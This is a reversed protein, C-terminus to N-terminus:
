LGLTRQALLCLWYRTASSLRPPIVEGVDLPVIVIRESASLSTKVDMHAQTGGLLLESINHIHRWNKSYIDNPAM